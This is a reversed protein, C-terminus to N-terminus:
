QVADLEYKLVVASGPIMKPRRPAAAGAPTAEYDAGVVFLAHTQPDLAMTRAGKHTPLTDLLAPQGDAGKGVISITAARGNSSFALGLATDFAAADVGEGIPVNAVVKGTKLDLVVMMKNACGAFLRANQADYALGTPEEGPALPWTTLVKLTKADIQAIQSSSELNVFVHGAGDDVSFEPNGTLAVTGIVKEGAADLVSVDNSGANWVFIEGTTPELTIADPKTGVSIPTAVPQLTKLDFVVVSNTQGSTAFGRGLKPDIAVGHAGTIGGVEGLLAGTQTDLVQIRTGRTIYLRHAAADETLLDWGGEGALKWTAALHYHPQAAAAHAPVPAALALLALARSFSLFHMLIPSAFRPSLTFNYGFYAPRAPKKPRKLFWFRRQAM